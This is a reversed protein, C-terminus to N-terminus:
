EGIELPMADTSSKSGETNTATAKIHWTGATLGIDQLKWDWYTSGGQDITKAPLSKTSGGQTFSIVCSAGPTSSCVSSLTNPAPKGSLNPHHNSVFNGSPPLLPASHSGGANKQNNEGPSPPTQQPPQASPQPAPEGKTDASASTPPMRRFIHTVGAFELGAIVLAALVLVGAILWGIKKLSKRSSPEPSPTSRKSVSYM